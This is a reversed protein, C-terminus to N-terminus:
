NELDDEGEDDDISQKMMARALARGADRHVEKHINLNFLRLFKFENGYHEKLWQKEGPTYPPEVPQREEAASASIIRHSNQSRRGEATAM